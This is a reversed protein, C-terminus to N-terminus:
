AQRVVTSGDARRLVMLGALTYGGFVRGSLRQLGDPGWQPVGAARFDALPSGMRACDADQGPRASM